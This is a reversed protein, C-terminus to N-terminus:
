YAPPAAGEAHPNYAPPASPGTGGYSPPAGGGYSPPAAGGYTPPPASGGYGPAPPAGEGRSPPPGADYNFKIQPPPHQGQFWAEQGNVVTWKSANQPPLMGTDFSRYLDMTSPRLDGLWWSGDDFIIGLNSNGDKVFKPKGGETGRVRYVGNAERSGAGTIAVWTPTEARRQQQQQQQPPRYQQQQQPPRYQQQQQPPRNSYPQIRNEPFGGSSIEGNDFRIKYANDNAIYDVVSGSRNNFQPASTLGFVTVRAGIQYKGSRTATQGYGTQKVQEARSAQEM